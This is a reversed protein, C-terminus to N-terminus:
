DRRYLVHRSRLGALRNRSEPLSLFPFSSGEFCGKESKEQGSSVEVCILASVACDWYWHLIASQL